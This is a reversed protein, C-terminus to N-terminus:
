HEPKTGKRALEVTFFGMAYRAANGAAIVAGAPPTPLFPVSSIAPSCTIDEHKEADIQETGRPSAM